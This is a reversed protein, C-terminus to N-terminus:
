RVPEVWLTLGDARIVRCPTAAPIEQSAESRATWPSGRVEVKGSGGVPIPEIVQGHEGVLTDVDLSATSKSRALRQLPRRLGVLFAVSLASFLVVAAWTPLPVGVGLLAGVVIASVGMFLFYFSGPAFMELGALALGAAMWIWWVM